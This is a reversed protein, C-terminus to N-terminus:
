MNSKVNFINMSFEIKFEEGYNKFIHKLKKEMTQKSHFDRNCLWEYKIKRWLTEILNLHPCRPPLFYIYLGQEQWVSFMAKTANSKHWSANDLIIVTQRTLNAAFDNMFRIFVESNMTTKEELPYTILRHTIPNLFALVNMVKTKVSKIEMQEGKKQYRYPIYPELSFGSEDVFYIDIM